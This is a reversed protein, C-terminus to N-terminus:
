WDSVGDRNETSGLYSSKIGQNGKGHHYNSTVLNCVEIYFSASTYTNYCAFWQTYLMTTSYQALPLQKYHASTKNGESGGSQACPKISMAARLSMMAAM